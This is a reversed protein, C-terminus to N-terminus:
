GDAKVETATPPQGADPFQGALSADWVHGGLRLRLGGVLEPRVAVAVPVPQGALERLADRIVGATEDDAPAAVELLAGDGDLWEGRLRDRDAEPSGRLEDALRGAIRRQLSADAAERLLREAMLVASRTLESRLQLVADTRLREVEAEAQERRRRAAQQAEERAAKRDAEIQEHAQRMVELRRRDTEALEDALRRRDESAEHQLREAEARARDVEERRRDIAQHIPRYLLRHLVFVLVLFNLIEFLFTWVNFIM